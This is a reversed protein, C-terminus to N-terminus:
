PADQDEWKEVDIGYEKLKHTCLWIDDTEELEYRSILAELAPDFNDYFEKLRQPGLGLQIHLQWLIVSILELKHKRDYEALERRVEMELAKEEATNLEVGFITKGSKKFFM